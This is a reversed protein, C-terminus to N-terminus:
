LTVLFMVFPLTVVSLITGTAYAAASFQKEGDMKEAFAVVSAAPPMAMAIVPALLVYPTDAFVGTLKFPLILLYTLAASLILRVFASLYITKDCFLARPSLSAVRVGVMLMSLPATMGGAYTVIQRLEAVEDMNFINIEPVLFLVFGIVSGITCPNLLAKKLSIQKKDQTILYAGLTWILLNFVVNFVTVYMMAESDGGTFMDVFPIGVFACNSFAGIFVLVDRKRRKEEGKMFLFCLKSAGFTLFIAAISLLFVWLFNLLTEGTPAIPDVAFAKIILLPQAFCLLINSISYLSDERVLGTKTLIFGPLAFAFLVLMILLVKIIIDVMIFKREPEANYCQAARLAIM